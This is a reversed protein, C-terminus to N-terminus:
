GRSVYEGRWSSHCIMTNLIGFGTELIIKRYCNHMMVWSGEKGTIRDKGKEIVKIWCNVGM